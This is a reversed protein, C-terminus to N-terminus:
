KDGMGMMENEEGNWIKIGYKKRLPEVFENWNRIAEADKSSTLIDTTVFDYKPNKAGGRRCASLTKESVGIQAACEKLTGEALLEKTRGRYIKYRVAKSM